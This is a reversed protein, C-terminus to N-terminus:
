AKQPETGTKVAEKPAQVPAPPEELGPLVPEPVDVAREMAEVCRAWRGAVEAAKLPHLEPTRYGQLFQKLDLWTQNSLTVQKM